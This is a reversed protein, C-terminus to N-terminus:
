TINHYLSVVIAGYLVERMFGRVWCEGENVFGSGERPASSASATGGLEGGQGQAASRSASASLGAGVGAGASASATAAPPAGRPEQVIGGDGGQLQTQAQPVGEQRGEAAAGGDAPSAGATGGGRPAASESPTAGLADSVTPGVDESSESWWAGPGHPPLARTAVAGRSPTSLAGAGPRPTPLPPLDQGGPRAVNPTSPQGQRAGFSGVAFMARGSTSLLYGRLAALPGQIFPPSASQQKTDQAGAGQQRSQSHEQGGQQQQQAAWAQAAKQSQM